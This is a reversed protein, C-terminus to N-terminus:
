NNRANTSRLTERQKFQANRLLHIESESTRLAQADRLQQLVALELNAGDMRIDFQIRPQQHIQYWIHNEDTRVLRVSLAVEVGSWVSFVRRDNDLSGGKVISDDDHM